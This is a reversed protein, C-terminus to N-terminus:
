LKWPEECNLIGEASFMMERGVMRFLRSYANWEFLMLSPWLHIVFSAM